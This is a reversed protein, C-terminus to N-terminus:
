FKRPQRLEGLVDSCIFLKYPLELTFLCAELAHLFGRQCKQRKQFCETTPFPPDLGKYLSFVTPMFVWLVAM